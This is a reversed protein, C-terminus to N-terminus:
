YLGEILDDYLKYIVRRKTKLTSTLTNNEISFPKNLLAFQKVKEHEALVNQLDDIRCGASAPALPPRNQCFDFYPAIVLSGTFGGRAPLAHPKRM